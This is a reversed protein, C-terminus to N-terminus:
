NQAGNSRDQVPISIVVRTGQQYDSEISLGYDKGYYLKIRKNVNELGFGGERLDIDSSNDDLKNQVQALKYSTFGIGDDAVELSIRNDGPRYVRVTVVGGSRKNKIGHYIANEVLPQLTMKLISNDLVSPDAEIRYDLIDRYRMKQITLYSKTREIEERITIWDRGKSLTIRFFSSLARVIEIVQDYRKSEAMWIITDLTNYLFHPNIQAQLVRFEAKKLNEQEKIKNDLMERIKGIMINFSLGLEAIENANDSTVLVQLDNETITTTVNHLKKIPIYISESIIWAAVVSFIAAALMLGLYIFTWRIFHRQIQRYNEEARNVEFLVYEQTLDEVLESVGRINELVRENDRVRSGLAMQAGMKDVYRTLTQMTRLIVDLKIEAKDSDTNAKMGWLKDNVEEIIQYQKGESFEKKGAVIDWMESNIAPKIYGNISNATTINAIIADYQRNFNLVQVILIINVSGMLAVVVFFSLLIKTRISLNIGAFYNIIRGLYRPSMEAALKRETYIM